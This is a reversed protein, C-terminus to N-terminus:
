SFYKNLMESHVRVLEEIGKETSPSIGNVKENTQNIYHQHERIKPLYIKKESDDLYNVSQNYFQELSKLLELIREKINM